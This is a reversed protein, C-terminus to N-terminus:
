PYSVYLSGDSSCRQNTDIDVKKGKRFHELDRKNGVLAVQLEDTGKGDYITEVLQIANNFSNKDTISYVM